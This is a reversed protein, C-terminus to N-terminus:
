LFGRVQIVTFLVGNVINHVAKAFNIDVFPFLAIELPGNGVACLNRGIAQVSKMMIRLDNAPTIVDFIRRGVAYCLDGDAAPCEEGLSRVYRVSEVAVHKSFDALGLALTKFLDFDKLFEALLLNTWLQAFIWVVYNYIGVIPMLVTNALELPTLVVSYLVPGIPDNWYSVTELFTEPYYETIVFLVSFFIAVMMAWFAFAFISSLAGVLVSAISSVISSLFTVSSGVLQMSAYGKLTGDDTQGGALRYALTSMAHVIREFILLTLLSIVFSIEVIMVACENIGDCAENYITVGYVSVFILGLM